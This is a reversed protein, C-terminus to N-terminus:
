FGYDWYGSWAIRLTAAIDAYGFCGWPYSAGVTGWTGMHIWSPYVDWSYDVRQNAQCYPGWSWRAFSGGGYWYIYGNQGCWSNERVYVWSIVSGWATDYNEQNWPSGYCGAARARVRRAAQAKPTNAPKTYVSAPSHTSVAHLGGYRLIDLAVDPSKSSEALEQGHGSVIAAKVAPALANANALAAQPSAAAPLRSAQAETSQVEPSAAQASGASMSALGLTLLGALAVRRLPNRTRVRGQNPPETVGEPAEARFTALQAEYESAARHWAREDTYSRWQMAALRRDLFFGTEDAAYAAFRGVTNTADM